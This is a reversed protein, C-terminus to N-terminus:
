PFRISVHCKPDPGPIDSTFWVNLKETYANAPPAGVSTYKGGPVSVKNRRGVIRLNKGDGKFATWSVDARIEPNVKISTVDSGPGGKDTYTVKVMHVYDPRTPDLPTDAWCHAPHTAASAPAAVAGTTAALALAAIAALRRTRTM